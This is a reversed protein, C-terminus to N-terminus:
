GGYIDKVLRVYQSNNKDKIVVGLKALDELLYKADKAKGERISRERAYLLDDIKEPYESNGLVWRKYQEDYPDREYWPYYYRKFIDQVTEQKGEFKEQYLVDSDKGLVILQKDDIFVSSIDKKLITETKDGIKMTLGETTVTVELSEYFIIFALLLGLIMGIIAAVISIWLGNLSALLEIIGRLPILPFEVIWNSLVPIYWGLVGGLLIPVVVILIKELTSFGLVVRNERM